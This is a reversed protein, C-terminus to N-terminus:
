VAEVYGYGYGDGYGYGSGYGSGDGYGDGSVGLLGIPPSEGIVSVGAEALLDKVARDQESQPMVGEAWQLLSCSIDDLRQGILVSKLGDKCAGSAGALVLHERTILVMDRVGM